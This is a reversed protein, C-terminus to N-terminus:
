FVASAPTAHIATASTVSSSVGAIHPHTSMGKDRDAPTATTTPAHKEFIQKNESTSDTWSSARPRSISHPLTMSGQAIGSDKDKVTFLLNSNSPEATFSQSHPANASRSMNGVGNPYNYSPLSGSSTSSPFFNTANTTVVRRSSATSARPKNSNLGSNSNYLSALAGSNPGSFASEESETDDKKNSKYANSFLTSTKTSKYKDFIGASIEVKEEKLSGKSLKSKRAYPGTNM